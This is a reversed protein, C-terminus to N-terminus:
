QCSPMGAVAWLILSWHHTRSTERWLRVWLIVNATVGFAIAIATIVNTWAPDRENFHSGDSRIITRWSDICGTIAWLTVTPGVACCLVPAIHSWYLIWHFTKRVQVSKSSALSVSSLSRSLYAYTRHILPVRFRPTIIKERFQSQSNSTM